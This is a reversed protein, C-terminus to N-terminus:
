RALLLKLLLKVARYAAAGAFGALFWFLASFVRDWMLSAAWGTLFSSALIGLVLLIASSWIASRLYGMLLSFHGTEKLRKVVNKDEVAPIITAATILYAVLIACASVIKNTFDDRWSRSLFWFSPHGIATGSLVAGVVWPMLKEWLLALKPMM